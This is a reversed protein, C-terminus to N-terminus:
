WHLVADGEGIIDIAAGSIARAAQLGSIACAEISGINLSNDTWDGALWLRGFGSQDARIRFRVSAARSQTYLESVDVNARLYQEALRGSLGVTTGHLLRWDLGGDAATQAGPWIASTQTALFSLASGSVHDLAADENGSISDKMVGCAYTLFEPGGKDPWNERVLLHSFDTISSWPEVYAGIIDPQRPLGMGDRTTDLWLQMALTRVSAVGAVMAQWRPSAAILESCLKPLCPLPIALVLHDFDEGAKLTLPPGRDRWGSDYHELNCGSKCLETGETIQDFLPRSPWCDLGRVPYLPQYEADKDKEETKLTVQQAIIVSDVSTGDKSLHLADARSFFRFRVGRRKLVTYIPAFVTDGMGAQMQYLIAGDYQFAIRLISRLAVGAAIDPQDTDGQAYCFAADYFVRLPASRFATQNPQGPQTDPFPSHRNMWDLFELANISDFGRKTLNDALMGKAITAGTFYLAWLRRPADEGAAVRGGIQHWLIRSATDILPIVLHTAARSAGQVPSAAVIVMDILDAVSHEAAAAARGTLARIHDLVGSGGDHRTVDVKEHREPHGTLMERLWGALLRWVQVLDSGPGGKGGPIEPFAVPWQRWADGVREQLLYTDQPKFADNRTALPAGKPRGLEAYVDDMLRFANHYFGFWVHLGHEEIRDNKAPNRGSAGKGGLRWGMQYVTVDYRGAMAPATLALATTLGSMGGGLIVVKEPKSGTKDQGGM